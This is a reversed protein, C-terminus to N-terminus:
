YKFYSLCLSFLILLLIKLLSNIWSHPRAQFYIELTFGAQKCHLRTSIYLTNKSIVFTVTYVSVLSQYITKLSTLWSLLTLLSPSTSPRVKDRCTPILQDTSDTSERGALELSDTTMLGLWSLRPPQRPMGWRAPPGRPRQQQHTFSGAQSNNNYILARTSKWINCIQSVNM